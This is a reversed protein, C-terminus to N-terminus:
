FPKLLLIADTGSHVWGDLAVKRRAAEAYGLRQYLRIAGPNSGFAIIAMGPRKDGRARAEADALLLAGLGQGRAEPVTALVNVYWHGPALNELEQLPVFAPPFDNGIEVPEDPLCYGLIGSLVVGDGELICANRYSFSGEERRAREFGVEDVSQGPAAMGAWILEPMGEGAWRVFRVLDAADAPTAARIFHQHEM